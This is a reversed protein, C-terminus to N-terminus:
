IWMIEGHYADMFLLVSSDDCQLPLWMPVLLGGEGIQQGFRNELVLIMKLPNTQLM